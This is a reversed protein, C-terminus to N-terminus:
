KFHARSTLNPAVRCLPCLATDNPCDSAVPACGGERLTVAPLCRACAFAFLTILPLISNHFYVIEEFQNNRNTNRFHGTYDTRNKSNGRNWIPIGSKHLRRQIRRSPYKSGRPSRKVRQHANRCEQHPPISPLFFCHFCRKSYEADL